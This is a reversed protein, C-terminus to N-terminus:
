YGWERFLFFGTVKQSGSQPCLGLCPARAFRDEHFLEFTFTPLFRYEIRGGIDAGPYLPQTYAIYVRPSWYRGVELRTGAFLGGVLGQGVQTGATEGATLGIYDVLGFSQALSQLGGAVYGFGHRNAAQLVAGGIGADSNEGNGSAPRALSNFASTPIGLFLYSALDSESIPPDEDSTLRVRPSQLTGTVRALIEIPEQQQTRTRYAATIDLNPDIGPTGPFEVTGERVDFIIAFPKHDFRYTGRVVELAGTLTLDEEQRDFDVNLSGGVEVSMERSRLWSGPGVTITADQVRLNKLFPNTSSPLVRRVSVLSTDVVDFLLPDDLGVILYQRYVEDLFLTGGDVRINADSIEPSRYRGRIRASGSVTMDVERRRTALLHDAEITLDLGPNAPENLDISGTVRAGGEATGRGGRDRPDVATANLDVALKRGPLVLGTGLVNQYRVGTADWTAAGGSLAFGGTLEPERTTGKAEIVGNIIGDVDTFGDLFALALGAPMTDAQVRVALPLDLRRRAGSTFRLDFPINGEAALVRKGFHFGDLSATIKQDAYDFRGGVQEMRANEYRLLDIRLDGHIDPAAAVGTIRVNGHMVGSADANGRVLGLADAFSVGRLNLSFDLPRLRADGDAAAWTLTGGALISGAGDARRFVTGDLQLGRPGIRLVASDALSWASSDAGLTLADVRLRTQDRDSTASGALTVAHQGAKWAGGRLRTMGAAYDLQVLVSDLSRGAIRLSDADGNLALRLGEPGRSGELELTVSHISSGEYVFRDLTGAASVDFRSLTGSITGRVRGSGAVRPRTPDLVEDFLVPELPELSASRAEIAIDGNRDNVLGFSGNATLVIGPVAAALTDIRLTGDALAGRFVGHQVPVAGIRASDLDLRIPGSMERVRIGAIDASFRGSLTADPLRDSLERLRFGSLTGAAAYGDGSERAVLSEFNIAGAPTNLDAALSLRDAPGALHVSGTALGHLGALSPSLKAIEELALPRAELRFDLVPAGGALKVTGAGSLESAPRGEAQHRLTGNLLLGDDLRGNAEVQGQVAGAVSFGPRFGEFLSLDLHTVDAIFRHAVLHAPERADVVGSWRFTSGDGSGHAFRLDGRTQLAGIPGRVEVTGILLGEVPLDGPLVSDLFDVDVPSAVLNVQTFYLTDGFVVGVTGAVTTGPATIRLNQAVVLTGKPELTQVRLGMRAVGEEPMEPFLWRMDVFHLEPTDIKLDYRTADEGLVVQGVFSDARTSPLRVDSFDFSIVSDVIGLTGRADRLDFPEEYVFGRAALSRAQFLRGEEEPSEWIVREFDANIDEFRQVRVKGGAVNELTIRATDDPEVPGDPQWANRVVVKGDEIRANRLLILRRRAPETDPEGEFIREYNWREQGPLKEITIEPRIIEVDTLVIRGRLISRWDYKATVLEATLFSRAQADRISVDHLRVGGLLGPGSVRGVTLEGKVQKSLYNVALEGVIQQGRETRTIVQIGIMTIALGILIGVAIWTAIRAARNM